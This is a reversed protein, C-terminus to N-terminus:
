FFVALEPQEIALTLYKTGNNSSAIVATASEGFISLMGQGSVYWIIQRTMTSDREKMVLFIDSLM